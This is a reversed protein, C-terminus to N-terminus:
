ITQNYKYLFIGPKVSPFMNLEFILVYKHMQFTSLPCSSSPNTEGVLLHLSPIGDIYILSRNIAFHVM